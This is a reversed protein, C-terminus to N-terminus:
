TLCGTVAMVGATTIDADPAVVDDENITHDANLVKAEVLRDLGVSDIWAEAACRSVEETQGQAVFAETLADEATARGGISEPEDTSDTSGTTSDDTPEETSWDTPDTTAEPTATEPTAGRGPDRGAEGGHDGVLGPVVLAAAVALSAVLAAAAWWWRTGSRREEARPPAAVPGSPTPGSPEPGTPTAASGGSIVTRDVEVRPAYAPGPLAAARRVDDRMQAASPYRASPDKAMARALIRDVEVLRPSPDGTAPPPQQLHANVLQYDTAATYPPAGTLAAWLLCGLSYIDSAVGAPSGTHLEPAMYTPTGITVTTGTLESDGSRAIGFDALFAAVGADHDRLLVNAPKIDRHILGRAHAEALGDAVDAVVGLGVAVPPPGDRHLRAALDGGEILQSAIYLRGHDEGYAYVHVVHASQLGAQARAEREFRIRFSEQEAVTPAIIKLAVDRGLGAQEARYVIGMGGGGLRERVVFGGIVDGDEPYRASM